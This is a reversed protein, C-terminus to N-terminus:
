NKLASVITMKGTINGEGSLPDDKGKTTYYTLTLTTTKMLYPSQRLAAMAKLFGYYPGSFEVSLGLETPDSGAQPTIGSHVLGYQRLVDDVTGYFQVANEPRQYLEGPADGTLAKYASVALAKSDSNRSLEKVSSRTQQLQNSVDVLEQQLFYQAVALVVLLVFALFSLIKRMRDSIKM